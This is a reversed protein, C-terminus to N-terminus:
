KDHSITHLISNLAAFDIDINKPSMSLLRALVNTFSTWVIEEEETGVDCVSVQENSM